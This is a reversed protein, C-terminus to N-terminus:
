PPPWNGPNTKIMDADNSNKAGFLTTLVQDAACGNLAILSALLLTFLFLRRM